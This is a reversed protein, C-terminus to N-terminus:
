SGHGSNFTDAIFPVSDFPIVVIYFESHVPSCERLRIVNCYLKNM